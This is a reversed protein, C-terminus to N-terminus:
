KESVYTDCNRQRAMKRVQDDEIDAGVMPLASPKSRPASLAFGGHAAKCCHFDFAGRYSL